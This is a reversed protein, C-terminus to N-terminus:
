TAVNVEDRGSLIAIATRGHYHPVPYPTVANLIEQHTVGGWSVAGETSLDFDRFFEIAPRKGLVDVFFDYRLGTGPARDASRRQGSQKRITKLSVGMADASPPAAQSRPQAAPSGAAAGFSQAWVPPALLLRVAVVAALRHARMMAVRVGEPGEVGRVLGDPDGGAQGENSSSPDDSFAPLQLVWERLQTFRVTLPDVTPIRKSWRWGSTKPKPGAAYSTRAARLGADSGRRGLRIGGGEEVYNRTYAPVECEVDGSVVAQCALRSQPTVAWATDLRDAEDDDLASLNEAGSRVIM